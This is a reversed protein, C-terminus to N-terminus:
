SFKGVNSKVLTEVLCICCTIWILRSFIKNKKCDPKLLDKQLLITKYEDIFNNEFNKFLNEDYM